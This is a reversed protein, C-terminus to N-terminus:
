KERYSSFKSGMEGFEKQDKASMEAPKLSQENNIVADVPTCQGVDSNKSIVKEHCSLNLARVISDMDVM